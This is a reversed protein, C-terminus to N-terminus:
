IDIQTGTLDLCFQKLTQIEAPHLRGDAKMVRLAAHLIPAIGDPHDLVRDIASDIAEPVPRLRRLYLKLKALEAESLLLGEDACCSHAYVLIEDTEATQLEGDCLAVATLLLLGRHRCIRKATTWPSPLEGILSDPLPAAPIYSRPRKLEVSPNPESLQPQIPWIIGLADRFFESLPEIVVGDFDAVAIIRDVRFSRTAQREHCKAVLIPIGSANGKIGWVTIRRTSEEGNSDEYEIIFSQGEAQIVEGPGIAVAESSDSHPVSIPKSAPVPPSPAAAARERFYERLGEM